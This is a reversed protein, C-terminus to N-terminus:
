QYDEQHAPFDQQQDQGLEGSGPPALTPVPRRPLHHHLAATGISGGARQAQESPAAAPAPMCFPPPPRGARSAPRARVQVVLTRWDPGYAVADERAATVWVNNGKAELVAQDSMVKGFEEQIAQAQAEIQM